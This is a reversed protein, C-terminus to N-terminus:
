RLFCLGSHRREERGTDPADWIRVIGAGGRSATRKGDPSWEMAYGSCPYPHATDLCFHGYYTFVHGGAAADWVQVTKDFRASAIRKGDDAIAIGM